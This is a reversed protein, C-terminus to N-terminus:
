KVSFSFLIGEPNNSELLLTNSNLSFCEMVADDSLNLATRAIKQAIRNNGINPNFKNKDHRTKDINWSAQKTPSTTHKIKAIHVDRQTKTSTNEPDIRYSWGAKFSNMWKSESFNQLRSDLLEGSIEIIIENIFEAENEQKLMDLYAETTSKNKSM